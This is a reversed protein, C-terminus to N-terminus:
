ALMAASAEFKMPQSWSLQRGGAVQGPEPVDFAPAVADEGGCPFQDGPGPFFVHQQRCLCGFFVEDGQQQFCNCTDAAGAM